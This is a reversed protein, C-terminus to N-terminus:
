ETYPLRLEDLGPCHRFIAELEEAELVPDDDKWDLNLNIHFSRPTPSCAWFMTKLLQPWKSEPEFSGLYLYELKRLGSIVSALFQVEYESELNVSDLSLLVLKPNLRVLYCAQLLSLEVFQDGGSSGEVETAIRGLRNLGLDLVALNALLPFLTALKLQPDLAPLWTLQDLQTDFVISTTDDQTTDFLSNYYSVTLRSEAKLCRIHRANRAVAAFIDPSNLPPDRQGKWGPLTKFFSPAAVISSIMEWRIVMLM